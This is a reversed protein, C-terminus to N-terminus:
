FIFKVIVKKDYKKKIYEKIIGFMERLIKINNIEKIGSKKAYQMIINALEPHKELHKVITEIRNPFVKLKNDKSYVVGILYIGYNLDKMYNEVLENIVGTFLGRERDGNDSWKIEIPIKYDVSIVTIDIKTRNELQVERLPTVKLQNLKYKLLNAVLLQLEEENKHTGDKNFLLKRLGFEPDEIQLIIEDLVEDVLFLLDKETELRYYGDVFLKQIESYSLTLQENFYNEMWNKLLYQWMPKNEKDEQIKKEFFEKVKSNRSLILRKKLFDKLETIRHIKKVIGNPYIDEPFYKYLIDLLHIELDPSYLELYTVAKKNYDLIEYFIAFTNKIFSKKDEPNELIRNNITQFLEFGKEFDIYLFIALNAILEESICKSEISSRIYTYIENEISNLEGVKVLFPIVSHILSNVNLKSFNEKVIKIFVESFFKYTEEKEFHLNQLEKDEGFRLLLEEEFAKLITEKYEEGFKGILEELFRHEEAFNNRYSFVRALTYINDDSTFIKINNAKFEEWADIIINQIYQNRFSILNPLNKWNIFKELNSLYLSYYESGLYKVIGNENEKTNVYRFNGKKLSFFNILFICIKNFDSTSEVDEAIQKLEQLLIERSKEERKIRELQEKEIEIKRKYFKKLEKIKEEDNLEIRMYKEWINELEPSNEKLEFLEKLFKKQNDERLIHLLLEYLYNRIKPNSKITEILDKVISENENIYISFEWFIFNNVDKEKEITKILFYITFEKGKRLIERLYSEAHYNNNKIEYSIKEFIEELESPNTSQRIIDELIESLFKTLHSEYMEIELLKDWLKTILFKKQEISLSKELKRLFAWYIGLLSENNHKLYKPLEEFPIIEPYITTLVAGYIEDDIEKNILEILEKKHEKNGIEKLALISITRLHENEQNNKAIKLLYESFESWKNFWIIRVLFEKITFEFDEKQILDKVYEKLDSFNKYFEPEYNLIEKNFFKEDKHKNIILNFIKRKEKDPLYRLDIKHLIRDDKDIWYGRFNKNLTAIWGALDLYLTKIKEEFSILSNLRKVTIKKDKLSNDIYMAALFEAISKYKFRFCHNYRDEDQILFSEFVLTDLIEKVLEDKGVYDLPLNKFSFEGKECIYDEKSFITFLAIEPLIDEAIDIEPTKRIRHEFGTEENEKVLYEVLRHYIEVKNNPLSQGNKYDNILAELILPIKAYSILGNELLSSYFEEINEIGKHMALNKIDEEFFPLLKVKTFEGLLSELLILQETEIFQPRSSIRLLFNKNELKKLAKILNNLINKDKSLYEDLGDIYFIAKSSISNLWEKFNEKEEEKLIFEFDEHSDLFDLNKLWFVFKNTENDQKYRHRFETTKGYGAESLLLIRSEASIDDWLLCNEYKFGFIDEKSEKLSQLSYFNECHKQRTDKSTRLKKLAREIYFM